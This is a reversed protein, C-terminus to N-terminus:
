PGKYVADAKSTRLTADSGGSRVYAIFGDAKDDDVCFHYESGAPVRKGQAAVITPDSIIATRGAATCQLVFADGGTAEIIHWGAEIVAATVQGTSTATLDARSIPGMKAKHLRHMFEMSM